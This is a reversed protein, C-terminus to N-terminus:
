RADVGPTIIHKQQPLTEPAALLQEVKEAGLVRQLKRFNAAEPRLQQCERQFKRAQEEWRYAEQNRQQKLADYESKIDIFRRYLALYIKQM